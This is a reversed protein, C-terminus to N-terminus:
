LGTFCPLGPMPAVWEDRKMGSLYGTRGIFACGQTTRLGLMGEKRTDQQPCPHPWVQTPNNAGQSSGPTRHQSTGRGTSGGAESGRTSSGQGQAAGAVNEMVPATEVASAYTRCSSQVGQAEGKGGAYVGTTHGKCHLRCRDRTGQDGM